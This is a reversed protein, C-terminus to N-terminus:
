RQNNKRKKDWGNLNWIVSALWTFTGAIGGGSIASKVTSMHYIFDGNKLFGVASLLLGILLLFFIMSMCLYLYLLVYRITGKM